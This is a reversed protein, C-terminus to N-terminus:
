GHTKHGERLPIKKKGREIGRAIQIAESVFDKALFQFTERGSFIMQNTSFRWEEKSTLGGGGLVGFSLADPSPGGRRKKEGLAGRNLVKSGRGKEKEGCLTGARSGMNRRKTEGAATGATSWSGSKGSRGGKSGRHWKGLKRFLVTGEKSM